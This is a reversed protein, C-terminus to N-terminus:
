YGEARWRAGFENSHMLAQFGTNTIITVFINDKSNVFDGNGLTMQVDLCQNPFTVPFNVNVYSGNSIVIGGQTIRGSIEKHWWTTGSVNIVSNAQAWSVARTYADNAQGEAYTQARTYADDAQSTAYRESAFDGARENSISGTAPNFIWSTSLGGDGCIHIVAEAFSQEYNLLYGFSVASPWTGNVRQSRGKTLPVYVGGATPTWEWLPSYFSSKSDLQSNFGGTATPSRGGKTEFYRASDLYDVAGGSTPVAGTDAATPKNGTHYFEYWSNWKQSDGNMTRFKISKGSYQAAIQTRYEKGLGWWDLVASEYGPSNAAGAYVFSTSGAPTNNFDQGPSFKASSLSIANGVRLARGPTLDNETEQADLAAATGMGLTKKAQGIDEVDTLNKDKRLFDNNAQQEGKSGKPRLDTVSGDANIQAVAFVYHNVDSKVYDALSDAVTVVTSVQWVSTLSGTFSADVWVKVPKTAVTLAQEAALVARLGGVYGAGANVSYNNGSRKVLFGDGMFAGAGYVDINEVRHREDMGALRATFDIQWTGAPTTIQTEKKAGDYEMLFSRTLVNGQTGANNKVKQQLPAHVIMALTNSTKDRLGVWNFDFDGVDAGLTISYVVANANVVGTKGVSARHVIQGAAPMAEAPDIPDTINLNPVNAFVFEDLVVPTNAAAQQAKLAEFATTIVTQSM